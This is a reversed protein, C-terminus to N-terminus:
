TVINLLSGIAADQARIAAMNASVLAPAEIRVVADEVLTRSPDASPNVGAQATRSASESLRELQRSIGEQSISGINM